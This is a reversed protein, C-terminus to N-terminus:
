FFNILEKEISHRDLNVDEMIVGIAVNYLKSFDDEEMKDFAISRPLAMKGKDTDYVDVFGAKMTVYARYAEFPMNLRSNDCGLKILAMFKKLFQYNREGWKKFDGEYVEGIKLKRKEDLDSDYLPILGKSTNKCFIKM